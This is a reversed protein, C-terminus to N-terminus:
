FKMVFQDLAGVALGMETYKLNKVLKRGATRSITGNVFWTDAPRTETNATHTNYPDFCRM